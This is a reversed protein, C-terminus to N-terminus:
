WQTVLNEPWSRHRKKPLTVRYQASPARRSVEIPQGGPPAGGIPLGSARKEACTPALDSNPTGSAHSHCSFLNGEQGGARLEVTQQLIQVAFQRSYHGRPRAPPWEQPRARHVKLTTFLEEEFKTGLLETIRLINKRLESKM